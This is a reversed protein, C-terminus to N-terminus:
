SHSAHESVIAYSLTGSTTEHGAILFTILNDIISDESMKEGTQSDIGRLMAALLDNRKGDGNAIRERLVSEATERLIKINSEYAEDAKRYFISPLPFRQTRRGSETLFELMACVFPHEADSYFNNFRFGMSCLALTDLALRTFDDTLHIRHRPGQRAWKMVLQSAVDHMEPFMNRIGQPGFAPMLIRHAIGWNPETIHATFLGDHVGNRIETLVSRPVKMFKDEDCIDDVLAVTSVIILHGEPFRLRYIDGYKESLALFSRNSFEPDIDAINGIIPYGRPEPIAVVDTSM